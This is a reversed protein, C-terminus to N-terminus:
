LQTGYDDITSRTFTEVYDMLADSAEAARKADGDAAAVAVDAHLRAVFQMDTVRHKFWFRRSLAHTLNIASDAFENGCAEMMLHNFENDLRFFEYEEDGDAAAVMDAATQRLLQRQERDARLAALRAVLRELERRVEILKLQQAVNIESVIVGRQPLIKVLRERALQQLAERIPTRGIGLRRSLESESVAAGPPLQLTVILEEIEKYATETLRAKGRRPAPAIDPNSLIQKRKFFADARGSGPSGSAPM